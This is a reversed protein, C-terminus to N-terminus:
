AGAEARIMDILKWLPRVNQSMISGVLEYIGENAYQEAITLVEARDDLVEVTGTATIALAYLLPVDTEVSLTEWRVIDRRDSSLPRRKGRVLGLCAAMLFVDKLEEFPSFEPDTGSSLEKYTDHLKAEIAIRDSRGPSKSKM